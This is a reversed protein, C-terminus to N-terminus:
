PNPAVAIVNLSLAYRQGPHVPFHLMLPKPDARLDIRLQAGEYFPQKREFSTVFFHAAPDGSVERMVWDLIVHRAQQGCQRRVESQLDIHVWGPDREGGNEM